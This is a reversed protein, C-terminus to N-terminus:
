SEGSVAYYLSISTARPTGLAQMGNALRTGLKSDIITVFHFPFTIWVIWKSRSKWVLHRQRKKCLNDTFTCIARCLEM